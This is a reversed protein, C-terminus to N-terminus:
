SVFGCIDKGYITDTGSADAWKWNGDDFIIQWATHGSIVDDDFVIDDRTSDSQGSDFVVLSDFICTHVVASFPGTLNISDIRFRFTGAGARTALNAAARIKMLGALYRRYTSDPATLQRIPCSAPKRGCQMRLNILQTFETAIQETTTVDSPSSDNPPPTLDLTQSQQAPSDINASESFPQFILEDSHRSCGGLIVALALWVVRRFCSLGSSMVAGGGLAGSTRFRYIDFILAHGLAITASKM